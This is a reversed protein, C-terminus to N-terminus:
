TDVKYVTQVEPMVRYQGGGIRDEVIRRSQVNGYHQRRSNNNRNLSNSIMMKWRWGVEKQDITRLPSLSHCVIESINKLQIMRQIMKKLLLCSTSSPLGGPRLGAITLWYETVIGIRNRTKSYKAAAGAVLFGCIVTTMVPWQTVVFFNAFANAIESTSVDMTATTPSPTSSFLGFPIMALRERKWRARTRRSDLPAGHQEPAAVAAFYALALMDNDSPGTVCQM